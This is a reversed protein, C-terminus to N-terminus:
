VAQDGGRRSRRSQRGHKSYSSGSESGEAGGIGSNMVAFRSQMIAEDEAALNTVDSSANVVDSALSGVTRTGAELMDTSALAANTLGKGVDEVVDLGVGLVAEGVEQVDQVLNVMSRQTMAALTSINQTPSRKLSMRRNPSSPSRSDGRKIPPPKNGEEIDHQAPVAEVTDGGRNAGGKTKDKSRSRAKKREM